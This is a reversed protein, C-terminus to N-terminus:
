ELLKVYTAPFIGIKGGIEGTWWGSEHQRTVRVKQGERLPLEDDDEGPFDYMVLAYVGKAPRRPPVRPAEEDVPVPANSAANGFPSKKSGKSFATSQSAGPTPRRFSGNMSSQRGRLTPEEEEDDDDDDRHGRPGRRPQAGSSNLQSRGESVAGAKLPAVIPETPEGEHPRTVKFKSM